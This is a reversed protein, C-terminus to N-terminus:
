TWSGIFSNAHQTFSDDQELLLNMLKVHDLILNLSIVLRIWSKIQSPSYLSNITNELQLSSLPLPSFIFSLSFSLYICPYLTYSLLPSFSYFLFSILLPSPFLSLYFSLSVSLCLSLTDVRFYCWEQAV